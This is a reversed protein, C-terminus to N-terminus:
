GLLFLPLKLINIAIIFLISAITAIVAWQVSMPLKKSIVHERLIAMICETWFTSVVVLLIIMVFEFVRASEIDIRTKSSYESLLSDRASLGSRKQRQQESDSAM